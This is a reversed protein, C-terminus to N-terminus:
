DIQQLWEVFDEGLVNIDKGTKQAFQQTFSKLDKQLATLNDPTTDNALTQIVSEIQVACGLKMFTSYNKDLQHQLKQVLTSRIAKPLVMLSQFKPQVVQFTGLSQIFPITVVWELFQDFHLISLASLTNGLAVQIGNKHLTNINDVLQNWNTGFRTFEAQKGVNEVSGHVRIYKFCNIYQSLTNINYENSPCLNSFIKVMLHKCDLHSLFDIFKWFTPSTCPEGGLFSVTNIKKHNQEFYKCLENYLRERQQNDIKWVDLNKQYREAPDTHIDTFFGQKKVINGWTTSQSNDCYSCAFNCLNDFTIVVSSPVTDRDQEFVSHDYGLNIYHESKMLRDSVSGQREQMWCYECGKPKEGSLMAKREKTKQPTNFIDRGVAVRSIKHPPNLNCSATTGQNFNIESWLWKAYCVSPSVQDLHKKIKNYDSM